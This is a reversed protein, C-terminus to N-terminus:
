HKWNILRVYASLIMEKLTKRERYGVIVVYAIIVVALGTRM